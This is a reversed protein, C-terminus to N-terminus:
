LRPKVVATVTVDYSISELILRALMWILVPINVFFCVVSTQFYVVINM